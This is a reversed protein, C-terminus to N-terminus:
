TVYRSCFVESERGELDGFALGGGSAEGRTGKGGGVFSGKGDGLAVANVKGDFRFTGDGELKVVGGDSESVFFGFSKTEVGAFIRDLDSIGRRFVAGAEESEEPFFSTFEGTFGDWSGGESRGFFGREVCGVEEGAVVTDLAVSGIEAFV